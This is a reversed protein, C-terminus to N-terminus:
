ISDCSSAILHYYNVVFGVLYEFNIVLLGLDISVMILLISVDDLITKIAPLYDDAM